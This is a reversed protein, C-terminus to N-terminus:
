ELFLNKLFEEGGMIIDQVYASDLTFQNLKYIYDNFILIGLVVLIVGSILHTTHFDFQRKFISLSIGKGQLFKWFARNKIRDFFASIIILPIALGLAYIFLLSTGKFLTGSTAALLLFSALIPGICASWGVAFVSGFLYSGVPTRHSGRLNINLGSFGKGFIEMMGFFIIVAAAIQTFILRNERLIGGIYTAGMGFLSFITALGLFFFVTNKVVEGKGGHFGQAFYAPLIPLTCPSLFSIIGAAFALVSLIIFSTGALDGRLEPADEISTGEEKKDFLKALFFDSRGQERLAGIADENKRYVDLLKNDKTLKASQIAYYIEDLGSPRNMLLYGLTKLGSELYALDKTIDYLRLMAFSFVANEQYSKSLDVQEYPAYFERDKSNRDFFGGSLWDYLNRLSYDAIHQAAKLYSDEGLVAYGDLFVLMAWANSIAQGTLLPEKKEYDFYYYAGDKGIMRDRLFDLSRVAVEKYENTGYQEYLFLYTSIMMSNADMVRTRDIYPPHLKDRGEQTLGYFKDELYADQSSYFGGEDDLFKDTLYSVSHEVANRVNRDGTITLLHAYARLLKAQDGLLKEYHPVTWDTKTSYRHFGGEVPDYLRYKKNIEAIDTYQNDFTIQVMDLYDASGTEEYKELLFKYVLGTPFKQGGAGQIIGGYTEDFTKDLHNLLIEELESLHTEEPIRTEVERYTFESELENFSKDRLFDVVKALYEKLALPDTPGSFGEIRRMDPTLITTSPWGGEMYKKTLDPRKDSDIFIAIFNNNIFPYLEPHYLYDESEYVHCWYCWAPASLVLYVPKQERLAQQFTELTYEHWNILHFLEEARERTYERETIAFSVTLMVVMLLIPVIIFLRKKKM